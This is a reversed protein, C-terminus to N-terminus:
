DTRPATAGLPVTFLVDGVEIDASVIEGITKGNEDMLEVPGESRAVDGVPPVQAVKSSLKVPKDGTDLTLGLEPLEILPYMSANCAKAAVAGTAPGVYATTLHKPNLRARVTGFNPSEGYLELLRFEADIESDKWTVEKGREGKPLSPNGRRVVFLGEMQIVDIGVGYIEIKERVRVSMADTAGETLTFPKVPFRKGVLGWGAHHGIIPCAEEQKAM